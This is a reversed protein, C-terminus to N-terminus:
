FYAEWSGLCHLHFSHISNFVKKFSPLNRYSGLSYLFDTGALGTVDQGLAATMEAKSQAAVQRFVEGLSNRSSVVSSMGSTTTKSSLADHSTVKKDRESWFKELKEFAIFEVKRSIDKILLGSMETFVAEFMAHLYKERLNM